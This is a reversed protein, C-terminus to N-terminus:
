QLIMCLIESGYVDTSQRNMGSSRWVEMEGRSVASKKGTEMTKDKESHMYLQGEMDAPEADVFEVVM